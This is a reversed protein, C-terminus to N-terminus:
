PAHMTHEYDHIRVYTDTTSKLHQNYSIATAIATVAPNSHTTRKETEQFKVSIYVHFALENQPKQSDQMSIYETIARKSEKSSEDDGNGCEQEIEKVRPACM